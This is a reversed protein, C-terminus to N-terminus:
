VVRWRKLAGVHWSWDSLQEICRVLAITAFSCDMFSCMWCVYEQHFDFCSYDFFIFYSYSGILGPISCNLIIKSRRRYDWIVVTRKYIYINNTTPANYRSYLPRTAVRSLKQVIDTEMHSPKNHTGLLEESCWAGPLFWPRIWGTLKPPRNWCYKATLLRESNYLIMSFFTVKTPKLPSM